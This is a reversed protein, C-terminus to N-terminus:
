LITCRDCVTPWNFLFFRCCCNWCDFELSPFVWRCFQFIWWSVSLSFQFITWHRGAEAVGTRRWGQPWSDACSIGLRAHWWLSSSIWGLDFAAAESCRSAAVDTEDAGHTVFDWVARFVVQRGCLAYVSIQNRLYFMCKFIMKQWSPKGLKDRAFGKPSLSTLKKVSWGSARGLAECINCLTKNWRNRGQTRTNKTNQIGKIKNYYQTSM